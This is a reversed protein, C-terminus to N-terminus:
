ETKTRESSSPTQLQEVIDPRMWARIASYPVTANQMGVFRAGTQSIPFLVLLGNPALLLHTYNEPEPALRYRESEPLPNGRQKELQRIATNAIVPLARDPQALIDEPALLKGNRMDFVFTLCSRTPHAGGMFEETTYALSLFPGTQVRCGLRGSLFPRAADHAMDPDLGSIFNRALEELQKQLTKDAVPNCLSPRKLRIDVTTPQAVRVMGHAKAQVYPSCVSATQARAQQPMTWFMSFAALLGSIAATSINM